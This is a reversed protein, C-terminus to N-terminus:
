TGHESFLCCYTESRNTGNHICRRNIVEPMDLGSEFFDYLVALMDEKKKPVYLGTVVVARKANTIELNEVRQTVDNLSAEFRDLTKAIVDVQVQGQKIAKTNASIELRDQRKILEIEDNVKDLCYDKLDSKNMVESRDQQIRNVDDRLARFMEYVTKLNISEPQLPQQHEMKTETADTITQEAENDRILKMPQTAPLQLVETESEDATQDMPSRQNDQDPMHPLMKSLCHLFESESSLSSEESQDLTAISSSRSVPPTFYDWSLSRSSDSETFSLQKRILDVKNVKPTRQRKNQKRKIKARVATEIQRKRKSPRQPKPQSLLSHEPQSVERSCAGKVLESAKKLDDASQESRIRSTNHQLFNRIDTGKNEKEVDKSDRNLKCGKESNKEKQYEM